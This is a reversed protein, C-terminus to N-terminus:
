PKIDLLKKVVDQFDKKTKAYTRAHLLQMHDSMVELFWKHSDAPMHQVSLEYQYGDFVFQAMWPDYQSYRFIKHGNLEHSIESM